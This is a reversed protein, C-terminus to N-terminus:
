VLAVMPPTCTGPVSDMSLSNRSFSLFSCPWSSSWPPFHHIFSMTSPKFLNYMWSFGRLPDCKASHWEAFHDCGPEFCFLFNCVGCRLKSKKKVKLVLKCYICPNSKDTFELRHYARVNPVNKYLMGHIQQDTATLHRRHHKLCEIERASMSSTDPKFHNEVVPMPSQKNGM